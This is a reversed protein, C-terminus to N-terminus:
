MDTGSGIAVTLSNSYKPSEMGLDFERSCFQSTYCARFGWSQSALITTGWLSM